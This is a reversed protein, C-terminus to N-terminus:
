GCQWFHMHMSLVCRTAHMQMLPQTFLVTPAVSLPDYYPVCVNAGRSGVDGLRTHASQSESLKRM